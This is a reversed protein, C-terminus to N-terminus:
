KVEGILEKILLENEGTYVMRYREIDNLLLYDFFEWAKPFGDPETLFVIYEGGVELMPPNINEYAPNYEIFVDIVENKKLRKNDTYYIDVVKFKGSMSVQNDIGYDMSTVKIHSIDEVKVKAITDAIEVFVKNPIYDSHVHVDQVLDEEPIYKQIGVSINTESNWEELAMIYWHKGYEGFRKELLFIYEDVEEDLYEIWVNVCSRHGYKQDMVENYVLKYSFEETNFFSNSVESDPAIYQAAKELENNEIEYMYKRIVGKPTMPYMSNFVILVIASILIIISVALIISNRIRRRRLRNYDVKSEKEYNEEIYSGISKELRTNEVLGNVIKEYKNDKIVM